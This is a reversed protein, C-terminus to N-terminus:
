KVKIATATQLMELLVTKKVPKSLYYDCGADLCKQIDESLANATLAVIPVHRKSASSAERERILRTATYGDMEPMQIDMLIVDYTERMAKECAEKGNGAMDMQHPYKKLYAQILNQNDEFDDVLLIRLVRESYPASAVIEDSAKKIQPSVRGSLEFIKGLAEKLDDKKVPKVLYSAFGIQRALERDGARNDSTLMVIMPVRVNKEDQLKQALEFGGMGPMRCDLIMLDYPKDQAAGIKQLAEVAGDAADATVGWGVLHHLLILRNTENDDVVLIKKNLFIDVEGPVHLSEATSFELPIVFHFQSGEGEKSNVWIKGGMLEVFRKSINLGLGTGGYKRTTSTDAQMFPEFLNEIKNKPIGIGTDSVVFHLVVKNPGSTSEKEQNVTLNIEGRPTFKISNNILNILVQRLRTPDSRLTAPITPDIQLNIDLGKQHAKLALLDVAKGVQDFIDFDINEIEMSGAEIKSIDLIDNIISLLGEGGRSLRAVYDKQETNLPTEHLLEAMGLIANMPTRIEHSMTALFDSKARSADRAHQASENANIEATKIKTIDTAIGLFGAIERKANYVATVYLSVLFRSGDKRIYTCEKLQPRGERADAVFVEFGEITKGFVRSMEKGCAIVEQLDHIVEPIKLGVMEEAKWGLMRESGRNFLQIVGTTDTSIISVETASDLVAQLQMRGKEIETSAKMLKEEAVKRETVDIFTCVSGIIEGENILPSASYEVPFFTGDKRWLVENDVRCPAGSKFAQYIPCEGIPYPSGNSKKYHALHHINKGLAEGLEYGLMKLAAHNIFTCQGELNIGYIGDVSSELLLEVEKTKKDAVQRAKVEATALVRMVYFFLFSAFIGVGLIWYPVREQGDDLGFNQSATYHMMFKREALYIPVDITFRSKYNKDIVHLENDFDFIVNQATMDESDFIEFDIQAIEKSQIVSHGFFDKASIVHAVFGQITAKREALTSVSIDKKYIPLVMM